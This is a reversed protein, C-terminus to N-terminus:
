GVPTKSAMQHWPQMGSNTQNMVTVRPAKKPIPPKAQSTQRKDKDFQNRNTNNGQRGALPRPSTIKLPSQEKYYDEDSKEELETESNLNLPDNENM